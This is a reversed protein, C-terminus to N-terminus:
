RSAAKTEVIAELKYRHDPILTFTLPQDDKQYTEGMAVSVSSHGHNLVWKMQSKGTDTDTVRLWLMNRACAGGTGGSSPTTSVTDVVTTYEVGLGVQMPESNPATYYKVVAARGHSMAFKYTRSSSALAGNTQASVTTSGQSDEWSGDFQEGLTLVNQAGFVARFDSVSCNVGPVLMWRSGSPAADAVRAVLCCLGVALLCSTIRM